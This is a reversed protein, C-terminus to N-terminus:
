GNPFPGTPKHSTGSETYRVRHMLVLVFYWASPLWWVGSRRCLPETDIRM